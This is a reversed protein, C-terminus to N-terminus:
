RSRRMGPVPKASRVAPIRKRGKGLPRPNAAVRKAGGSSMSEVAQILKEIRAKAEVSAESSAIRQVWRINRIHLGVVILLLVIGGLLLISSEVSLSQLVAAVTM